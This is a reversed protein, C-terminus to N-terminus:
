EEETAPQMLSKVYVRAPGQGEPYRWTLNLWKEHMKAKRDDSFDQRVPTLEHWSTDGVYYVYASEFDDGKLLFQNLNFDFHEPANLADHLEYVVVDVNNVCKFGGILRDSSAGNYVHFAQNTVELTELAKAVDVMPDSLYRSAVIIDIDKPPEGFYM